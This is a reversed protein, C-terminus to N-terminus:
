LKTFKLAKTDEGSLVKNKRELMHFLSEEANRQQDGGDKLSTGVFQGNVFGGMAISLCVNIKM